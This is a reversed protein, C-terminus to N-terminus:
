LSSYVSPDPTHTLLKIAGKNQFIYGSTFPVQGSAKFSTDYWTAVSGNQFYFYTKFGGLATPLFFLDTLTLSGTTSPTIQTQLSSTNFQNGAPYVSGFYNYGAIAVFKTPTKKIEGTVVLTLNNGVVRKILLGDTYVIPINVANKYKSDYWGQTPGNSFYFYTDFGGLGNPVQVTDCNAVNGDTNPKLGISNTAGFIEGITPAKRLQLKTTSPVVVATVDQPTNLETATWSTIEQITGDPLELIYTAGASLLSTFSASSVTLKNTAEATVVGTYVVPSHVTLGVINNM